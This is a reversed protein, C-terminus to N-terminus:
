LGGASGPKVVGSSSPAPPSSKEGSFDIKRNAGTTTSTGNADPLQPPAVASTVARSSATKAAVNTSAAVHCEHIPPQLQPGRSSGERADRQQEHREAGHIPAFM